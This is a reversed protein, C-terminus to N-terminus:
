SVEVPGAKRVFECCSTARPKFVECLVINTQLFQQCFYAKHHGRGSYSDDFKVLLPM